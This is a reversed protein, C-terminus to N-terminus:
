NVKKELATTIESITKLEEFEGMEFGVNLATELAMELDVNCLSDWDEIDNIVTDSDLELSDNDAVKKIEKILEKNIESHTMDKGKIINLRITEKLEHM